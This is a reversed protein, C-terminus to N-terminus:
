HETEAMLDHGVVIDGRFSKGAASRWEEDTAGAALMHAMFADYTVHQGHAIQERIEADVAPAAASREDM